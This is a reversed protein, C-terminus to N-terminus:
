TEEGSTLSDAERDPEATMEIEKRIDDFYTVPQSSESEMDKSISGRWAMIEVRLGLGKVARVTDLYDKDAAVLIATDFARSNALTLLKTALAVDVGKEVPVTRAAHCEKCRLTKRGLTFLSVEYRMENKIFRYFGTQEYRPPDTVSAFFYTQWVEGGKELFPHLKRADIRWGANMQGHFVNSNDIFVITRGRPM